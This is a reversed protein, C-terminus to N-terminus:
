KEVRSPPSPATAAGFAFGLFNDRFLADGFRGHFALDLFNGGRGFFRLWARDPFHGALRPRPPLSRRRFLLIILIKRAERTPPPGAHL